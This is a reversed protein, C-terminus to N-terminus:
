TRKNWKKIVEARGDKIIEFEGTRRLIYQSPENKGIGCQACRIEWDCWIIVGSRDIRLDRFNISPTKGCFPCNELSEAM